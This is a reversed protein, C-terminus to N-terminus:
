RAGTRVRIEHIVQDGGYGGIIALRDVPRGPQPDPAWLIPRGDFLCWVMGGRRSLQMTHPGPTMRTDDDGEERGFLRLRTVTNGYGGVFAIYDQGANMARTGPLFAGLIGDQKAEFRMWLDFETANLGDITVLSEEQGTHELRGNVLRWGAGSRKLAPDGPRLVRGEAVRSLEEPAGPPPDPRGAPELMRAYFPRYPEYMSYGIGEPTFVDISAGIERGGRTWFWIGEGRNPFSFEFVTRGDPQRSVHWQMGPAKGFVPRVEPEDRNLLEFGQVGPGSYVGRGEGDLTVYLRQWPGKLTFLGYYALEDHAQKFVAQIGGEDMAGGVPIGTWERDDGDLRATAPWVFPEWPYLPEPDTGDPLTDRDTDPNRPDPRISQFPPKNWSPQLCSPAWTSLMVKRLEPLRGDTARRRPSSGFRKEDLPLRPDDDPFGDQDEDRVTVTEGFYLRLWQADTLTRDWFAMGDWHEGHRDSTTWATEHVTGDPRTTRQRPEYHNFVIREDERNSLSFAGHSELQHHFEHCALWATDGGGLYQSRGPIGQPFSDVGLTGGGSNMFVWRGVKADWRRPFAQEIQASYPQEEVIPERHVRLPDRTDVITFDGGGPPQFDVGAYSRCVPWGRYFAAADPPEPGWRQWRDDVLLQFDVWLRMGSNVWFFRATTAYEQRLRGMESASLKAPPPVAAGAAHASEINIVNPMLLVKVPLRIVTKRGKPATTSVAFERRWGDGAGWSKETATPRAGPDHIRYYYRRGPKLGHVTVRHRTRRGPDGEVIRAASSDWATVEQGEPRWAVMPLEGQRVQVRTPCPGQTFYQLTFSNRTIEAVPRMPDILPVEDGACGAAPRPPQSPAGTHTPLLTLLAALLATCPISIPRM